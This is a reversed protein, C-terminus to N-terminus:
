PVHAARVHGVGQGGGAGGGGAHGRGRAGGHGGGSCCDRRRIQSVGRVHRSTQLGVLARPCHVHAHSGHGLRRRAAAAASAAMPPDADIRTREVRLAAALHSVFGGVHCFLRPFFVSAIKSNQPANLFFFFVNKQTTEQRRFWNSQKKYGGNEVSMRTRRSHSFFGKLMGDRSNVWPLEETKNQPICAKANWLIYAPPKEGELKGCQNRTEDMLRCSM